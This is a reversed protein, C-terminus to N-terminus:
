DVKTLKGTEPNIVFGHVKIDAPILPHTKIAAVTGRVSEEVSDFGKLWSNLDVGCRSVFDIKEKNIGRTAMKKTIKGADMGQCGCDSHGIVLVEEVGLAYIAIMLSRMVSGFPHSIVAGANKIIKIDGNKFNLAAPLIETLRADMCSLVAIKKNPFKTVPYAKFRKEKVFKKNFELMKKINSM